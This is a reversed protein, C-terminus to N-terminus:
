AIHKVHFDFVTRTGQGSEERVTGDLQQTLLKILQRGFGSGQILGSKGVGDDAVELHLAGTPAQTLRITIHGQQRAPFAYKFTNTLLENVILGLPVATDVDLDLPDMDCHIHVHDAAGFSELVSDSLDLFYNRMEIVGLNTGQYLKQHVIGISQVRNQSERMVEKVQQDEMQASQLALLGSVVGLNNKVRHHVEKLLLENEANKAALLLNAQSRLRYSRYLLLLFVALLAVLGAGLWQVLQQQSIQREQAAITTEKQETEYRTRLESIAADSALSATSDRLRRAKKQYSLAAPYDGMQEYITSLHSYNEVLNSLDGLQEQQTVTELQYPLAQDYQELLLYVEGINATTAYIGSPYNVQRVNALCARYDALAEPYRGMRKLANGRSNLFQAEEILGFQQARALGLAQDYADFAAEPQGMDLSADGACILMYPLDQTLNEERCITIAQEAYALAEAHRGQHGLDESVRGLANAIGQPDGLAQMIRLAKLDAEMAAAIDERKKHVWAIKFATTAQGHQNGVSQYGAVAQNFYRMASDLESLNAYTRGQMEYFRAQWAQHGSQEALAVGRQTYSLAFQFGSDTAVDVMQRLLSLRTSDAQASQYRRELSDIVAEQGLLQACGALWLGFLFIYRVM